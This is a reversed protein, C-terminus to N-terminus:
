NPTTYDPHPASSQPGVTLNRLVAVKPSLSRHQSFALIDLALKLDDLIQEAKQILDHLNAEVELILDASLDSLLFKNSFTGPEM